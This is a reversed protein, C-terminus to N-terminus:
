QTKLQNPTLGTWRKFARRFNPIDYFALHEAVQENHKACLTLLYIAKHKNQEDILASFRVGNLKLRRKFTASSMDFHKATCELNASPHSYLYRCAAEIFTMSVVNKNDLQSQAQMFRLQSAHPNKARLMAKNLVWRTCPKDFSVKLGLNQEYEQIHRPRKFAFDFQCYPYSESVRKLLSYFATSYIELVYRYLSEDLGHAPQIYIYVNDNKIYTQSFLLPALQMRLLSLQKLVQALNDSYILAQAEARTDNILQSGLLFGSDTSKMLLKFQALLRVQQSVSFAHQFNLLDQEFIGTGRLLKHLNIDRSQALEVASTILGQASLYKDDQSVFTHM